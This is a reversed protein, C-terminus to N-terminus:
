KKLINWSEMKELIEKELARYEDGLRKLEDWDAELEKSPKLIALRSEINKITNLLSVGGITIDADEKLEIGTKSINVTPATTGIAAGLTYTGNFGNSTNM